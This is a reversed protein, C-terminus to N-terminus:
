VQVLRDLGTLFPMGICYIYAPCTVYLTVSRYCKFYQDYEFINWVFSETNSFATM